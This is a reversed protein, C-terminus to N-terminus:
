KEKKFPDVIVVLKISNNYIFFLCSVDNICLYQCFIMPDMNNIAKKKIKLKIENMNIKTKKKIRHKIYNIRYVFSEHIERCINCFFFFGFLSM